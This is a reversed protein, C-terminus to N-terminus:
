SIRTTGPAERRPWSIVGSTGRCCKGEARGACEGGHPEKTKIRARSRIVLQSCWEVTENGQMAHCRRRKDHGENQNLNNVIPFPWYPSTLRSTMQLESISSCVCSRVSAALYMYHIRACMLLYAYLYLTVFYIVAPSFGNHCASQFPM